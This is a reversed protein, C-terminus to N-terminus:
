GVLLNLSKLRRDIRAEAAANEKTQAAVARSAASVNPTARRTRKAAASVSAKRSTVMAKEVKGAAASADVFLDVRSNIGKLAASILRNDKGARNRILALEQRAAPKEIKGSKIRKELSAIQALRCSRLAKSSQGTQTILKRENRADSNVSALVQADSMQERKQQYYTLSAGALGSGVGVILATDRDAGMALATLGGLVASAVGAEIRQNLETRKAAQISTYHKACGDNADAQIGFGQMAGEECGQLTMSAALLGAVIKAKSSGTTFHFM